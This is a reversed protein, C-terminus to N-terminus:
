FGWWSFTFWEGYDWDYIPILYGLSWNMLKFGLVLLFAGLMPHRQLKTLLLLAGLMTCILGLILYLWIILASISYVNYVLNLGLWEVLLAILFGTFGGIVIGSAPKM